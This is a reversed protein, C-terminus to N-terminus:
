RSVLGFSFGSSSVYAYVFLNTPELILIKVLVATQCKTFRCIEVIAPDFKFGKRSSNDTICKQILATFSHFVIGATQTIIGADICVVIIVPSKGTHEPVGGIYGISEDAIFQQTDNLRCFLCVFTRNQLPNFCNLQPDLSIGARLNGSHIPHFIIMNGAPNRLGNGNELVFM